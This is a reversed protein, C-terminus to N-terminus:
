LNKVLERILGLRERNRRTLTIDNAHVGWPATIITSRGPVVARECTHGRHTNNKWILNRNLLIYNNSLRLRFIIIFIDDRGSRSVYNYCNWQTGRARLVTQVRDVYFDFFFFFPYRAHLVHKKIYVYIREHQIRVSM